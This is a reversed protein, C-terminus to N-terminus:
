QAKRHGSQEVKVQLKQSAITLVISSPYSAGDPLSTFSVDLGVPDGADDLHTKVSAGLLANATPDLDIAFTDGDQLYDGFSLRARQGPEVMEMSAKGADKARQLRAPDPPVYMHLLETARKMEATMEAKKKEVIKKKARKGRRRGRGKDEQQAPQEIATKQVKGDAGYYCRNQKRAKEEGKLSIVTTEIWEYQRIKAQSEQISQKLAAIREQSAPKQALSMGAGTLLMAMFGLVAGARTSMNM